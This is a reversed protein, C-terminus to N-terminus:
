YCVYFFVCVCVDRKRNNNEREREKRKKKRKVDVICFVIEFCVLCFNCYYGWFLRSNVLVVKQM